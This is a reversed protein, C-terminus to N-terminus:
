WIRVLHMSTRTLKPSFYPSHSSFIWLTLRATLCSRWDLAKLCTPALTLTLDLTLTLLQALGRGELLRELVVRVSVRVRVTVTVRVRVRM